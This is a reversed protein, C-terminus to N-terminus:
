SSTVTVGESFVVSKLASTDYIDGAILIGDASEQVAIEIVRDLIYKQDDALDFDGLTKGLHLDGLHLFKM